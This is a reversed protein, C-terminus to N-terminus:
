EGGKKAAPRGEIQVVMEPTAFQLNSTILEMGEELGRSIVAKHVGARAVTVPIIRVQSNGDVAWVVNGPRLASRPIVVAGPDPQGQFIAEVFMGEALPPRDGSKEYPSDVEVIVPVLRSRADIAGGLRVARGAWTHQQGAFEATIVVPVPQDADLRIWALDEDPVPVSIEAMDTAYITGISNGARLYQGVDAAADLVRGDFPATLTCRDLNVQAQRVAAQASALTAEALKLQPQRLVLSSPTTGPQGIEEWEQRASRAEEQAMALNMEAQAQSAQAQALALQYDTTEIQLLIQGTTFYGGPEFAPHKASVQGSVQPVLMVSRKARVSGFGRISVSTDEHEVAAVTVRPRPTPPTRREAHPKNKIMVVAIVVAVIVLAIPLLIKFAKSQM